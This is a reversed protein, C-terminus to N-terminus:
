GPSRKKKYGEQFTVTVTDGDKVALAEKLRIPAVLEIIDPPYNGVLPLVIAAEKGELLVKYSRAHCFNASPSLIEVGPKKKIEELLSIYEPEVKINFTGPYPAFGLKELFQSKVWELQTFYIGQGVGSVVKGRLTKRGSM